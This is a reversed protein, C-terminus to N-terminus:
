SLACCGGNIARAPPPAAGDVKRQSMQRLQAMMENHGVTKRGALLRDKQLAADDSEEGGEVAAVDVGFGFWPLLESNSIFFACFEHRGVRGDGDADMARLLQSLTHTRAHAHTRTHTYSSDLSAHYAPSSRTRKCCRTIGSLLRACMPAFVARVQEVNSLRASLMGGRSVSVTGRRRNARGGSPANAGNSSGSRPTMAKMPARASAPSLERQVSRPGESSEGSADAAITRPLRVTTLKADSESNAAQQAAPTVANTTENESRLVAAAEVAASHMVAALAATAAGDAGPAAMVRQASHHNLLAEILTALEDLALFGDRSVNFSDFCLELRERISGNCLTSLVTVLERFDIRGSRDDDCTDFLRDAVISIDIDMGDVTPALAHTRSLLEGFQEREMGGEAIQTTGVM